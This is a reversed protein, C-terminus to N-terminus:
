LEVSYNGDPLVTPLGLKPDQLIAAAQVDVELVKEPTELKWENGIEDGRGVQGGLLSTTAWYVYESVQCNYGCTRDDYTFWADKPYRRPVEDFVGGRAVDMAQAIASGKRQGLEDPHVKAWGYNLLLHHVEELSADFGDAPATESDYLGQFGRNAQMDGFWVADMADELEDEDTAMVLTAMNGILESMVNPDDPIGDEDNDLYQAMVKAAHLVKEDQTAETAIVPIGWVDVHKPFTGAFEELDWHERTDKVTLDLGEHMAVPADGDGSAMSAGYLALALALPALPTM